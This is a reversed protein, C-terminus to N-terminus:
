RQDSTKPEITVKDGDLSCRSELVLCVVGLVTELPEDVFWMTLTRDALSHDMLRVRVHYQREIEQVADRMPTTQFALFTGTWAIATEINPIRMVPLLRGEKVQSMEGAVVKVEGHDVSRLAVSGEVVMLRLDRRAAEVDFRTGLVTLDGADTRIRFPLRPDKAVAFYARGELSVARVGRVDVLQLRSHPALRVVTSDRLEITASQAGTVFKNAGLVSGSGLPRAVWGWAGFGLLLVATVAAVPVWRSQWRSRDPALHHQEDGIVAPVEPPEVVVGKTEIRTL